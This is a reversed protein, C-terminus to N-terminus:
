VKYYVDSKIFTRQKKNINRLSSPSKLCRRNMNSVVFQKNLLAHPFNELKQLFLLLNKLATRSKIRHEQFDDEKAPRDEGYSQECLLYERTYDTVTTWLSDPVTSERSLQDLKELSELFQQDM